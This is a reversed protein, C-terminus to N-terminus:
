ETSVKTRGESVGGDEAQGTLLFMGVVVTNCGGIHIHNLLYISCLTCIAENAAKAVLPFATRAEPLPWQDHGTAETITPILRRRM